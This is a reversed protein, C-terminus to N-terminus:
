KAAATEKKTTRKKKTEGGADEKGKGEAAAPESSKAKGKGKEDTKPEPAKPVFNVWELIAMESSDSSRRGTRMIRTYGGKRDKMAPAIDKFLQGVRDDRRLISIARRRAALDGRKGLTVMKEALSRAAKAKQVTTEIRRYEILNCVLSSLLADRHASTRGLKLTKKRHRM